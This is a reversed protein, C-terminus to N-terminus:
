VTPLIEFSFLLCTVPHDYKPDSALPDIWHMLRILGVFKTPSIKIKDILRGRIEYYKDQIVMIRIKQSNHCM